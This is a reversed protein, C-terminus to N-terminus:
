IYVVVSCYYKTFIDVSQYLGPQMKRWQAEVVAGKHGELISVPKSLNSHSWLFVRNELSHLAPVLLM